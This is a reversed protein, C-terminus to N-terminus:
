RRARDYARELQEFLPSASSSDYERLGRKRMLHVLHVMLARTFELKTDDPLVFRGLYGLPVGGKRRGRFKRYVWTAVVKLFREAERALEANSLYLLSGFHERLSQGRYPRSSRFAQDLIEDNM